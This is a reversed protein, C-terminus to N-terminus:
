SLDLDNLRMVKRDRRECAELFKEKVWQLEASDVSNVLERCQDFEGLHRHIEATLLRQTNDNQDYINILAKCNKYWRIGDEENEFLDSCERTRDNYMWWIKERIYKENDKAKSEPLALAKFYEDITPFEAHDADEWEPRKRTKLLRYYSGVMQNELWFVTKCKQCTTIRPFSPLMPAEKKGDSFLLACFTNGSGLIWEYLINSCTPCKYYKYGSVTM